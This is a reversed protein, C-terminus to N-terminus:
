VHNEAPPGVKNGPVTVNETFLHLPTGVISNPNPSPINDMTVNYTYTLPSTSTTQRLSAGMNEMVVEGDKVVSVGATDELNAQSQRIAVPFIAAVMIFGLGLLIVAFMVEPFSFGRRKRWKTGEHRRRKTGTKSM